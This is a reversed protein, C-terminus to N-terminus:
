QSPRIGGLRRDIQKAKNSFVFYDEDERGATRFQSSWESLEDEPSVGLGAAAALCATLIATRLAGFLSIVSRFMKCRVSLQSCFTAVIPDRTEWFRGTLDLGIAEATVLHTCTLKEPSALGPNSM